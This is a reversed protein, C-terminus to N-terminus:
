TAIRYLIRRMCWAARRGSARSRRLPACRVTVDLVHVRAWDWACRSSRGARRTCRAVSSRSPSSSARWRCRSCCASRSARPPRFARRTSSGPRLRCRSPCRLRRSAPARARCCCAFFSCGAARACRTWCRRCAGCSPSGQSRSPSIPRRRPQAQSSWASFFRRERAAAGAWASTSPSPSSRLRPSAM